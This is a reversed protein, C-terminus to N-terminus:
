VELKTPLTLHTYSVTKSTIECSQACGEAAVSGTYSYEICDHNCKYPDEAKVNQDLNIKSFIKKVKM